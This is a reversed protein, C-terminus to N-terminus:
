QPHSVHAPYPPRAASCPGTHYYDQPLRSHPLRGRFLHYIWPFRPQGEGEQHSAPDRSSRRSLSRVIITPPSVPPTYRRLPEGQGLFGLRVLEEESVDALKKNAYQPDM